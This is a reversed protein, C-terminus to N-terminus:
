LLHLFSQDDEYQDRFKENTNTPSPGSSAADDFLTQYQMGLGWYLFWAAVAVGVVIALDHQQPLDVSLALGIAIAVLGAVFRYRQRLHPQELHKNSAVLPWAFMLVLCIFVFLVSM